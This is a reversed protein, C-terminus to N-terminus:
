FDNVVADVLSKINSRDNLNFKSTDSTTVENGDNIDNLTSMPLLIGNKGSIAPVSQWVYSIYPNQIYNQFEDWDYFIPITSDVLTKRVNFNGFQMSFYHNNDRMLPKSYYGNNQTYFGQGVGGAQISFSSQGLAAIYVYTSTYGGSTVTQFLAASNMLKINYTTDLWYVNADDNNYIVDASAVAEQIVQPDNSSTFRFLVM